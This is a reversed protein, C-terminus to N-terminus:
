LSKNIIKLKWYEPGDVKARLNAELNKMILAKVAPDYASMVKKKLDTIDIDELKESGTGNIKKYYDFDDFLNNVQIQFAQETCTENEIIHVAVNHFEHAVDYIFDCYLSLVVYIAFYMSENKEYLIVDNMDYEEQLNRM